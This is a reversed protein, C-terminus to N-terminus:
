DEFAALIEEVALGELALRQQLRRRADHLLKYLANRNTGMRRAVEELPMGGAIVALLAERQRETLEDRILRNVTAVLSRRVAQQEPSVSTSALSGPAGAPLARDRQRELLEQLSVDRWRLRRLETYAVNVAIKHAWTTFRSEGRFSDLSAMVKLLAEQAFDEIVEAQAPDLQGALALQLGHVLIARLDTLTENRRAGRLESLWADNSREM